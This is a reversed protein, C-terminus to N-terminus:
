TPPLHYPTGAFLERYDPNRLRLQGCPHTLLEGGTTTIAERKHQEILDGLSNHSAQHSGFFTYTGGTVDILYHRCRDAARYSIAYGWIRESVRVLFCGVGAESLVEEAETRSIIGHFWPAIRTCSPDLGAGRPLEEEKFWAVIAARSPPKPPRMRGRLVCGIGVGPGGSYQKM